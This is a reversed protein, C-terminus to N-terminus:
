GCVNFRRLPNGHFLDGPRELLSILELVVKSGHQFGTYFYARCRKRLEYCSLFLSPSSHDASKESARLNISILHMLDFFFRGGTLPAAKTEGDSHVLVVPVVVAQLVPLPRVLRVLGGQKRQVIPASRHFSNRRRPHAVSRAIRLLIVTGPLLTSSCTGANKM